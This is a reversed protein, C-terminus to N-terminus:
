AVVLDEIQVCTTDFGSGGDDAPALVSLKGSHFHLHVPACELDFTYEKDPKLTGEIRIITVGVMKTDNFEVTEGDDNDFNQSYCTSCTDQTIQYDGTDVSVQTSQDLSFSQVVAGTSNRVVELVTFDENLRLTYDSVSYTHIM